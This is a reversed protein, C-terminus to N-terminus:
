QLSDKKKGAGIWDGYSALACISTGASITGVEGWLGLPGSVPSNPHNDPFLIIDFTLTTIWLAHLM